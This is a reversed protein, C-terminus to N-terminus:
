SKVKDLITKWQQDTVNEEPLNLSIEKQGDYAPYRTDRFLIYILSDRSPFYKHAYQIGGSGFIVKSANKLLSIVEMFSLKEPNIIYWNDDVLSKLVKNPVIGAKRFSRHEETKVLVFKDSDSYKKSTRIAYEQIYDLVQNVMPDDVRGKLGRISSSNLYYDCAPPTVFREFEYLTDTDLELVAEEPFLCQFLDSTNRSGGLAQNSIAVYVEADPYAEVTKTYTIYTYVAVSLEHGQNWNSYISSFPIVISTPDFAVVETSNRILENITLLEQSYPYAFDDASPYSGCESWWTLFGNTNANMAYEAKTLSLSVTPKIGYEANHKEYHFYPTPTPKWNHLHQHPIIPYSKLKNM